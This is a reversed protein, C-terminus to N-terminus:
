KNLHEVKSIFDKLMDATNYKKDTCEILGHALLNNDGYLIGNWANTTTILILANPINYRELTLQIDKMANQLSIIEDLEAKM